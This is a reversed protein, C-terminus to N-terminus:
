PTEKMCQMWMEMKWCMRWFSPGARATWVKNVTKMCIDYQSEKGSKSADYMESHSFVLTYRNGMAPCLKVDRENKHAQM